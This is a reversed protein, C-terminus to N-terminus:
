TYRYIDQKVIWIEEQPSQCMEYFEFIRTKLLAIKEDLEWEQAIAPFDILFLATREVALVKTGDEDTRWWCGVFVTEGTLWPPLGPFLSHTFGTIPLERESEKELYQRKLYDRIHYVARLHEEKNAVLFFTVRVRRELRAHVFAERVEPVEPVEPKKRKSM